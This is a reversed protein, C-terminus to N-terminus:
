WFQVKQLNSKTFFINIYFHKALCALTFAVYEVFEFLKNKAWFVMM